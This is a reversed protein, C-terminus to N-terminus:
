TFEKLIESKSIKQNEFIINLFHGAKFKAGVGPQNPAVESLIQFLPSVYTRTVNISALGRYYKCVRRSDFKM